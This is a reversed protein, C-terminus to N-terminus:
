VLEMVEQQLGLVATECFSEVLECGIYRYGLQKCAKAVPGSGMYPDYVLAGAPLKARLLCWRMLAVPKQMPHLKRQKESATICGRWLHSFMRLPGGINSWAIECDANDDPTTGARKDWVFWSSSVPLHEPYYNAGWLITKTKLELIPRPDFSVDDGAVHPWDRAQLLHSRGNSKRKTRENAGYPPDALVLAPQESFMVDECRANFITIGNAEYYPLIARAKGKEQRELWAALSADSGFLAPAGNGRLEWGESHPQLAWGLRACRAILTTNTM